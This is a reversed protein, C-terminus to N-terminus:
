RPSIFNAGIVMIIMMTVFVSADLLVVGLFRLFGNNKNCMPAIRWIGLYNFNCLIQTLVTLFFILRDWYLLAMTGSSLQLRFTLFILLAYSLGGIIMHGANGRRFGPLAYKHLFYVLRNSSASSSNFYKLNHELDRRIAKVTPYRDEPRFESCRGAIEEMSKRQTDTGEFDIAKLIEKILVGFAYIDTQPTSAGFGYQEPAAYGFTGLLTTDSGEKRAPLYEKAANYDILYIKGQGSVIINSPKIDRHIIPVGAGHLRELIRCLEVLMDSLGKFSFRDHRELVTLLNNGQIYEEFLILKGDEEQMSIVDPVGDIHHGKLYEFVSYNYVELVKRVCLKGTECCRVLEINHEENLVALKEFRM